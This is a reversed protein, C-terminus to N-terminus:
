SEPRDITPSRAPFRLFPRIRRVTKSGIGKVQIMDNAHLFVPQDTSGDARQRERFEVVRKAISEGLGPLQALQFWEANNPDIATQLVSSAPWEKDRFDPDLRRSYDTKLLLLGAFLVAVLIFADRQRASEPGATASDHSNGPGTKETSGTRDDRAQTM